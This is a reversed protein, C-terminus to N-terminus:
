GASGSTSGVSASASAKPIRTTKRGSVRCLAMSLSASGRCRASIMPNTSPKRASYAQLATLGVNALGGGVAMPLRGDRLHKAHLYTVTESDDFHLGPDSNTTGFSNWTSAAM